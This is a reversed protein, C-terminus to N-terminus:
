KKEKKEPLDIGGLGFYSRLTKNTLGVLYSLSPLLISVLVEGILVLPLFYTHNAISTIGYYMGELFYYLPMASFIYITNAVVSETMLSILSSVSAIATLIIVPALSCAAVKAGKLNDRKIRGGDAKIRDKAGEQWFFDHAVFAFIIVCIVSALIAGTTDSEFHHIAFVRVSLTLVLSLASIAVQTVFYRLILRMNKKYFDIM